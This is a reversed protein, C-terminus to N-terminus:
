NFEELLENTFMRKKYLELEARAKGLIIETQLSMIEAFEKSNNSYKSLTDQLSDKLIEAQDSSIELRIM